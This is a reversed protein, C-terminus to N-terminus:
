LMKQMLNLMGEDKIYEELEDKSVWVLENWQSRAQENLKPIGKILQCRHFFVTMRPGGSDDEVVSRAVTTTLHGAPANGVFYPQFGELDTVQALAREAGKRTTEGEQLEVSPFEWDGSRSRLLMFIRKDLRRQLTSRDGSRDAATQRPAPEWQPEESLGAVGAIKTEEVLDKPLARRREFRERWRQYETEWEELEPM